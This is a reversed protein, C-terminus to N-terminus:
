LLYECISLFLHFGTVVATRELSDEIFVFITVGKKVHLRRRGFILEPM